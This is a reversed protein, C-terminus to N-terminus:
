YREYTTRFRIMCWAGAAGRNWFPYPNSTTGAGSRVFTFEPTTWGEDDPAHLYQALQIEAIMMGNKHFRALKLKAGSNESKNHKWKVHGCVKVIEFDCNIEKRDFTTLYRYQKGPLKETPFENFM